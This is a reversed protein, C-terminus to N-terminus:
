ALQQLIQPIVERVDGVIAYDAQQMVPAKPDTNIAVVTGAHQMGSTFSAAGSM